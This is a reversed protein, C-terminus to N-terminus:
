GKMNFHGTDQMMSHCTVMDKFKKEIKTESWIFIYFANAMDPIIFFGHAIGDLRLM